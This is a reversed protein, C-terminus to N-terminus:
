PTTSTSVNRRHIKNSDHRGTHTRYCMPIATDINLDIGLTSMSSFCQIHLTIRSKPTYKGCMFFYMSQPLIETMAMAPM